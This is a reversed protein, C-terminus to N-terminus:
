HYREAKDNNTISVPHLTTDQGLNYKPHATKTQTQKNRLLTSIKSFIFSIQDAYSIRYIQDNKSKDHKRWSFKNIRQSM